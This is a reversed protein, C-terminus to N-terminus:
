GFLARGLRLMTSGASVAAAYDGSMGMSLVPLRLGSAQEAELRLRALLEFAPEPAGALPAMGMLGRLPLVAAISRASAVVEGPACGHKGPEASVNVQLLVEQAPAREAILEALRQSDVSQILEFRGAALKVKNSQLHGILHWHASPLQAVRELGEAVRNEALVELGAALAEDCEALSRTKTVAM